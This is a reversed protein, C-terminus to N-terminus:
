ASREIADRRLFLGDVQLTRGTVEHVYGPFIAFLEFGMAVIKARM